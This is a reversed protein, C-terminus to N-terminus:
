RLNDPGITVTFETNPTFEVKRRSRETSSQISTSTTPKKCVNKFARSVMTPRAISPNNYANSVSRSKSESFKELLQLFPFLM